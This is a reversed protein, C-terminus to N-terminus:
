WNKGIGFSYNGWNAYADLAQNREAEGEKQMEDFKEKLTYELEQQEQQKKANEEESQEEQKDEQQQEKASAEDLDTKREDAEQQEPKQQKEEQLKRIYDIIENMLIQAHYDHGFGSEDACGDETLVSVARNLKEITEDLNDPTVSEQTIPKVIALAYNVRISCEKKKSPHKKLAKKYEEIAKDYEEQQFYINGKNYPLVEPQTLSFKPLLSERIIGKEYQNIMNQNQFYTTVLCLLVLLLGCWITLFIKKM